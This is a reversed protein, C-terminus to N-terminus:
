IEVHDISDRVVKSLEVNSQGGSQVSSRINGLEQQNQGGYFINRCWLDANRLLLGSLGVWCGRSVSANSEGVGLSSWGVHPQVKNYGWIKHNM